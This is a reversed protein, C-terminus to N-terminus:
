KNNKKEVIARVENSQLKYDWFDSGLLNVVASLKRSGKAKRTLWSNRDAIYIQGSKLHM